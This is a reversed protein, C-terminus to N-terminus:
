NPFWYHGQGECSCTYGVCNCPEGRVTDCICTASEPIPRGCSCDPVTVTVLKGGATRYRYTVANVLYNNVELDILCRDLRENKFEWLRLPSGKYSGYGAVLRESDASFALSIVSQWSAKGYEDATTYGFNKAKKLKPVPWVQIGNRGDVAAVWKGDPSVASSTPNFSSGDTINTQAKIKGTKLYLVKITGGWALVTYILLKGDPSITWSSGTNVDGSALSSVLKGLRFKALEWIDIRGAGPMGLAVLKGDCDTALLKGEWSDKKKGKRLSWMHTANYGVAAFIYKSNSTISFNHIQSEAKITQKRKLTKLSWVEISDEPFSDVVVVLWKSDPSIAMGKLRKDPFVITNLVNGEPLSWLKVAVHKPGSGSALVKGNKSASLLRIEDQQAFVEQCFDHQPNPDAPTTPDTEKANVGEHSKQKAKAAGAALAGAAGSLFARRGFKWGGRDRSVGFTRPKSEKM